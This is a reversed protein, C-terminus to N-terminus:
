QVFTVNHHGGGHQPWLLAPINAQGPIITTTKRQDNNLVVSLVCNTVCLACCAVCMGSARCAENMKLPRSLPSATYCHPEVTINSQGSEKKVHAVKDHECQSDKLPKLAHKFATKILHHSYVQCCTM